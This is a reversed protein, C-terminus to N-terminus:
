SWQRGTSSLGSVQMASGQGPGTQPELDESRRVCSKNCSPKNGQNFAFIVDKMEGRPSVFVQRM